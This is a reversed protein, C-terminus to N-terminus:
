KCCRLHSCNPRSAGSSSETPEGDFHRLAEAVCRAIGVLALCCSGSGSDLWQEVRASFLAHFEAQTKKTMVGGHHLDWEKRDQQLQLIKETPLSDALRFTVFYM